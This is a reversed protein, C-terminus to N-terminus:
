LLINIFYIIYSLREVKKFTTSTNKNVDPEITNRNSAVAASTSLTNNTQDGTNMEKGFDMMTSTMMNMISQKSHSLVEQNQMVDDDNSAVFVTISPQNSAVTIIEPQEDLKEKEVIDLSKKPENIAQNLSYSSPQFSNDTLKTSWQSEAGYIDSLSRSTTSGVRSISYQQHPLDSALQAQDYNDRHFNQAAGHNLL